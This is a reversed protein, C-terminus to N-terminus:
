EQLKKSVIKIERNPIFHLFGESDKITTKRLTIQVVEGEINGIKIKDGVKFQDELLIFIGSIFDSILDKSAMSLVLGGLGLGTLIPFINIGMESLVMLIALLWVFFSSTGSFLSFLTILRQQVKQDLKEKIKTKLIKKLFTRLFLDILFACLLIGLVKILKEFLLAM